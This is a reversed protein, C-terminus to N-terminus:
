RLFGRNKRMKLTFGRQIHCAKVWVSRSMAAIQVLRKGWLGLSFHEIYWDLVSASKGFCQSGLAQSMEDLRIV